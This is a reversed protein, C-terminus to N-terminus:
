VVPDPVNKVIWSANYWDCMNLLIFLSECIMMIISPGVEDIFGGFARGSHGNTNLNYSMREFIFLYQTNHFSNFSANLEFAFNRM